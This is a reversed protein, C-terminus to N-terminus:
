QLIGVFPFQIVIGTQLSEAFPIQLTFVKTLNRCLPNATHNGKCVFYRSIYYLTKKITNGLYVKHIGLLHDHFSFTSDWKSPKGFLVEKRSLKQSKAFSYITSKSQHVPGFYFHGLEHAALVQAHVGFVVRSKFM